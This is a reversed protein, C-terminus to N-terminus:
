DGKIKNFARGWRLTQQNARWAPEHRNEYEAQLQETLRTVLVGLPEKDYNMAWDAIATEIALADEYEPFTGTTWASTAPAKYYRLTGTYVKSPRPWLLLKTRDPDTTFHSPTGTSSNEADHIIRPRLDKYHFEELPHQIDVLKLFYVSRFETLATLSIEHTNVTTISADALNFSLDKTLYWHRFLRKAFTLAETSIGPNAARALASTIITGITEPSAL